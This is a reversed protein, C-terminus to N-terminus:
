DLREEDLHGLVDEGGEIISLSAGKQRSELFCTKHYYLGKVRLKANEMGCIECKM